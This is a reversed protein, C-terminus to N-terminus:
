NFKLLCNTVYFQKSSFLKFSKCFINYQDLVQMSLFNNSFVNKISFLFINRFLKSDSFDYFVYYCFLPLCLFYLTLLFICRFPLKLSWVGNVKLIYLEVSWFEIKVCMAVVFRAGCRANHRGGRVAATYTTLQIILSNITQNWELTYKQEQTKRNNCM